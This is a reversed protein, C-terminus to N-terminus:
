GIGTWQDPVAAGALGAARGHAEFERRLRRRLAVDALGYRLGNLDLQWLEALTFGMEDRALSGVPLAVQNRQAMAWLTQAWITGELHVHLEAKPMAALPDIM